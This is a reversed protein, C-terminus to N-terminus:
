VWDGANCASAKVESGGPFLVPLHELQLESLCPLALSARPLDWLCCTSFEGGDLSLCPQDVFDSCDSSLFWNILGCHSAVALHLPHDDQGSRPKDEKRGLWPLWMAPRTARSGLTAQYCYIRALGTVSPVPVHPPM